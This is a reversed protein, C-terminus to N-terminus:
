LVSRTSTCHANVALCRSSFRHLLLLCAPQSTRATFFFFFLSSFLSFIYVAFIHSLFNYEENRCKMHRRSFLFSGETRNERCTQTKREKPKKKNKAFFECEFIHIKHIVDTANDLCSQDLNCLDLAHCFTREDFTREANQQSVKRRAGPAIIANAGCTNEVLFFMTFSLSCCIPLAVYTCFPPKSRLVLSLAFLSVPSLSLFLNSLLSHDFTSTAQGIRLFPPLNSFPISIILLSTRNSPQEREGRM